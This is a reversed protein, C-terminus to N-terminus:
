KIIEIFEVADPAINPRWAWGCEVDGKRTLVLWVRRPKPPKPPEPKVRYHDPTLSFGLEQVDTWNEWSSPLHKMQITKGDALALVLPVYDKANEKNM